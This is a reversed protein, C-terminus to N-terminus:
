VGLKKRNSDRKLDNDWSRKIDTIKHPTGKTLVEWKEEPDDSTKLTVLNGVKFPKEDSLWCIMTKKGNRLACQFMQKEM